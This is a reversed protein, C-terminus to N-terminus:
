VHPRETGVTAPKTETSRAAAYADLTKSIMKGMGFNNRAFGLAKKSMDQRLKPQEILRSVAEALGEATASSVGLGTEGEVYTEAMGGVATCVVPLRSAQAEILVNPLGEMRSTLVFIDMAALSAWVDKTVGPLQISESCGCSAVYNKMDEFMPGAGFILFKLKPHTRLLVRAMDILLKPRKEESFRIVSGVVIAKNHINFKRREDERVRASAAPPFEFGNHIVRIQTPPLDLWRAYDQAGARSNNLLITKRRKFLSRYGPRMYPQFISFHDPAMSRGSQIIHPVGVLDAAIGGLVNCYDM